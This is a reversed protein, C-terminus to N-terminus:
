LKVVNSNMRLMNEETFYVNKFEPQEFDFLKIFDQFGVADTELWLDGLNSDTMQWRVLVKEEYIGYDTTKLNLNNLFSKYNYPFTELKVFRLEVGAENNLRIFEKLCNQAAVKSVEENGYKGGKCMAEWESTELIILRRKTPQKNKKLEDLHPFYEIKTQNGSLIKSLEDKHPSDELLNKFWQFPEFVVTLYVSRNCEKILERAFSSYDIANVARIVSGVKFDSSLKKSIFKAVLWKAKGFSPDALPELHRELTHNETFFAAHRIIHDLKEETKKSFEKREKPQVFLIELLYEAVLTALLGNSLAIWSIGQPLGVILGIAISIFIALLRSM